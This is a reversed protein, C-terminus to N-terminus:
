RSSDFVAEVEKRYPLSTQAGLTTTALGGAANGFQVAARLPQGELWACAFGAVFADGAAVTDVATVEVPPVLCEEHGQQVLLAGSSGLTVIVIPVGRDNLQRAAATIEALNNVPANAILGIEHENPVLVDILPWLEDPIVAAPAPNVIVKAGHQKALEAACLIADMPIEFQMVVADARQFLAKNKLVDVPALRSNAGPAVVICNKGQEDVMISAAGTAIGELRGVFQLDISEQKLISLAQPAFHDQGVMGILDVAAGLRHLALAQNAGKGGPVTYYRHGLVTEGVQPIKPTSFVIDVNISGVVIVEKM